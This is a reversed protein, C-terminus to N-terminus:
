HYDLYNVVYAHGDEFYFTVRWNGSVKVSWHEKLKGSLPHLNFGPLNMDQVDEAAHLSDLIDELKVAHKAQIGKTSGTRFFKELGKHKFSKIM